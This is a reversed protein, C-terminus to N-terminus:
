LANEDLSDGAYRVLIYIYLPRGGRPKACHRDCDRKTGQLFVQCLRM